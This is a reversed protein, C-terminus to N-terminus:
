IIVKILATYSFIKPLERHYWLRIGTSIFFCFSLLYYNSIFFSFILRISTILDILSGTILCDTLSCFIFYFLIFSM